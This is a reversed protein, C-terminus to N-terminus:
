LGANDPSKANFYNIAQKMLDIQDRMYNCTDFLINEYGFKYGSVGHSIIALVKLTVQAVMGWSPTAVVEMAISGLLGCTVFLKLFTVAYNASRKIEPNVGLPARHTTARGRKMIMESTLKVPSISNAKWIAKKQRESLSNKANLAHKDISQYEKVYEAYSVGVDALIQSRTNKLENSIYHECFEPLKGHLNMDVIQKKLQDYESVTDLYTQCQLGGRRGSSACNIYMLYSCFLFVFFSLALSIGQVFTNLKIDTTMTVIFVFVIFVSMFIGIHNIFGKAVKKKYRDGLEIIDEASSQPLKELM